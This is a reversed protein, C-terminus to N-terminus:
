RHISGRQISTTLLVTVIGSLLLGALAIRFLDEGFEDPVPRHMVIPWLEACFALGIPFFVLLYLSPRFRRSM